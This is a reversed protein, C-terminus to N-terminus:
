NELKSISIPNQPNNTDRGRWPFSVRMNKKKKWNITEKIKGENRCSHQECTGNKKGMQYTKETLTTIINNQWM